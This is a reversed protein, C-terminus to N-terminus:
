KTTKRSWVMRFTDAVTVNNNTNHNNNNNPASSVSPNIFEDCCVLNYKQSFNRWLADYPSNGSFETNFDGGIVFKHRPPDNVIEELMAITEVTEYICETRRSSDLFPMYISAFIIPSPEASLETCVVRRHKYNILPKMVHDLAPAWAISVGGFPRGSLIGSSAAQEMGSSAVYQVGLDGMATLQKEALWLEQAMWVGGHIDLCKKHFASSTKYGHLNHSAITFTTNISAFTFTLCFASFIALFFNCAMESTKRRALTM